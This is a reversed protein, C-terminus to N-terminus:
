KLRWMIPRDRGNRVVTGAMEMRNVIGWVARCEIGTKDSIMRVTQWRMSMVSLVNQYRVVNAHYVWQPLETGPESKLSTNKKVRGCYWMITTHDRHLIRGVPLYGYGMAVLRRAIIVRAGVYHRPGFKRLLDTPNIGYETCVEDVVARWRPRPIVIQIDPSVVNLM